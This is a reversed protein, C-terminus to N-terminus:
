IVLVLNKTFLMMIDGYFIAIFLGVFIAPTFPYAIKVSVEDRIIGQINMIKLLYMDKNSIGGGTSSNFYYKFEDNDKNKFVKLNGDVDNILEVIKEDNFYYNNVINGEKLDKVLVDKNLSTNIIYRVGAINILYHIIDKNKFIDNKIVYHAVFILLFPFSVLISNVVVSFVFPYISLKPFINLFDVSLGLPITSAIGTFLRVDGGGWMKLEWLYSTIIYTFITIIVSAFIFKLNKTIVSLILNSSIGFFILLYNLNNPIYNRKVDYIAACLTFFLTIIIQIFFISSFNMIITNNLVRYLNYIVDLLLIAKPIYFYFFDTKLFSM